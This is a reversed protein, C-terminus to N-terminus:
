RGGAAPTFRPEPLCTATIALEKAVHNASFSRPSRQVLPEDATIGPMARDRVLAVFLADYIARDYQIAIEFAQNIVRRAEEVDVPCCLLAKLFADAESRSIQKQRHRKWTASAVEAYALDLVVLREGKAAVETFVRQAQVSDAEPLIWKAFVSSDVVLGSM